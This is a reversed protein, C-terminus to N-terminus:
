RSYLGSSGRSRASSGRSSRGRDDYSDRGGRSGGRRPEDYDDYEDRSDRGRRSYGRSPSTSRRGDRAHEREAKAARRDHSVAPRLRLTLEKYDIEGSGDKDLADFAEIIEDNSWKGLKRVVKVFEAESVKHDHDTDARDFAQHLNKHRAAERLAEIVGLDDGQRSEPRGPRRGEPSRRGRPRERDHRPRQREGLRRHEVRDHARRSSARGAPVEVEVEYPVERVTERIVEYPVHRVTERASSADARSGGEYAWLMSGPGHDSRAATLSTRPQNHYYSPSPPGGYSSHSPVREVYRIIPVEIYKVVERDVYVVDQPGRGCHECRDNEDLKCSSLNESLVDPQPSAASASSKSPSEM